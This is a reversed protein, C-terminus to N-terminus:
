TNELSINWPSATSASATTVSFHADLLRGALSDDATGVSSAVLMSVDNGDGHM